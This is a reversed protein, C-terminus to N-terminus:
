LIEMIRAAVHFPDHRVYDSESIFNGTIPKLNMEKIRDVDPAVFDQHSVRYRQLTSESPLHDNVVVYDFVRRPLNAEIAIVHEAATFSESEGVQTMVNCIYVKPCDTETLAEAMGPVLLNPVVSTYVSGPGILIIDAEQIAQLADPHPAVTPPDLFIRRIRLHSSVIKTEGVIESGDEMLAKLRVHSTTAPVVRGRINLVESARKLAEDVDGASQHVLGALLLNGLSHGSLAGSTNTFRHQFLDTMLKEADSLAVLCNRLDGPPIMGLEQVIKGSSGGDDSVCVIATINSSHQKLGRLLTSLGTGGGIAVIRPGSSLDQRRRFADVFGSVPRPSVIGLLHRLCKRAGFVAAYGGLLLLVGALIHTALDAGEKGFIGSLFVDWSEAADILFPFLFSRMTVMLGLVFVFVGMAGALAYNIFPGIASALLKPKRRGKAPRAKAGGPPKSAM